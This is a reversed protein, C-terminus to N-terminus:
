FMNQIFDTAYKVACIYEVYGRFTARVGHFITEIHM